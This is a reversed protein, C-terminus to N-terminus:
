TGTGEEVPLRIVVRQRAAVGPYPHTAAPDLVAVGEECVEVGPASLIADAIDQVSLVMGTPGIKIGVSTGILLDALWQRATARPDTM